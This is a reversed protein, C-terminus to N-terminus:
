MREEIARIVEALFGGILPINDVVISQLIVIVAAGLVTFGLTFGLGRVIGYLLNNWIMRKRNNVYEVYEDLQMRELTNMMREILDRDRGNM